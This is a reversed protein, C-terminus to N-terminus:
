GLPRCASIVETSNRTDMPPPPWKIEVPECARKGVYQSPSDYGSAREMAAPPPPLRRGLRGADACTLLETPYRSLIQLRKKMVFAVIVSKFTSEADSSGRADEANDRLNGTLASHGLDHCQVRISMPGCVVVCSNLSINFQASPSNVRRPLYHPPQKRAHTVRM